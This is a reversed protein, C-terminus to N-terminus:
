LAVIRFIICLLGLRSSLLDICMYSYAHEYIHIIIVSYTGIRYTMAVSGGGKEGLSCNHIHMVLM